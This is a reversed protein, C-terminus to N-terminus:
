DTSEAESRSEELCKSNYLGSLHTVRRDISEQNKGAQSENVIIGPWFFIALAVNKGTVGSEDKAEEFKVGLTQLESKLEPCSKEEDGIQVTQITKNSVCATLAFAGIVVLLIKM